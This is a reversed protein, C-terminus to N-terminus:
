LRWLREGLEILRRWEPRKLAESRRLSACAQRYSAYAEDLEGLLAGCLDSRLDPIQWDNQERLSPLMTGDNRVPAGSLVFQVAAPVNFLVALGIAWRREAVHVWNGGLPVVSGSDDIWVSWILGGRASDPPNASQSLLLVPRDDHAYGRNLSVRLIGQKLSKQFKIATENLDSRSTRSVVSDILKAIEYGTPDTRRLGRWRIGDSSGEAPFFV